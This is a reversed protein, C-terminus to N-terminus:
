TDHTEVDVTIIEVDYPFGGTDPAPLHFVETPQDRLTLSKWAANTPNQVVLQSVAAELDDFADQSDEPKWDTVDGGALVYILIELSCHNISKTQGIGVRKRLSPASRVFVVPSTAFDAPAHDYVAQALGGVGELNNKLILGLAARATKRSAFTLSFTM